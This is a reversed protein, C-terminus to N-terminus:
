IEGDQKSFKFQVKIVKHDTFSADMVEAEACPINTFIQDLMGGQRHTPTDNILSTLGKQRCIQRAQETMNNFDGVVIVRSKPLRDIILCLM